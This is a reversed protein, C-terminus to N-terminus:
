RMAAFTARNVELIREIMLPEVEPSWEGRQHTGGLIIGDSRPFMYGGGALLIYDVEPQPVLVALQGKIPTLEEDGFLARSGLGTCNVVVTEPLTAIEGADRMERVQIKGGRLLFDNTLATLFTAPEILMTLFRRAHPAGFPHEGPGLLQSEPFLDPIREFLGGRSPQAPAQSLSYNEIWRVGYRPGVLNQFYRYAFRSAQEFQERFPEDTASVDAVSTPSWQGGAINSTTDPPLAKTYITVAHGRDQLRRASTLGMVGSGLVAFRTQGTEHALQAALESSGWSLSIGGGGHGYNHVVTRDGHRDARVVFGSPRFPRLGAVTRIVRDPSVLVRTLRRAPLRSGLGRAGSAACGTGLASGAVLLLSSRLMARRSMPRRFPGAAGGDSAPDVLGPPPGPPAPIPLQNM